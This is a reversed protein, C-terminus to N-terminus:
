DVLYNNPVRLTHISLAAINDKSSRAESHIPDFFSPENGSKIDAEFLHAVHKEDIKRNLEWIPSHLTGFATSACLSHRKNPFPSIQKLNDIFFAYQKKPPEIHERESDPPM